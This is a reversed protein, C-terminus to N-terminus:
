GTGRANTADARVSQDSANSFHNKIAGIAVLLHERTPMDTVVWRLLEAFAIEQQTVNNLVKFATNGARAVAKEAAQHASRTQVDVSRETPRPATGRNSMGARAWLEDTSIDLASAIRHTSAPMQGNSGRYGAELNGVTSHSLGAAKALDAQTWGRLARLEAIAEGLTSVPSATLPSKRGPM